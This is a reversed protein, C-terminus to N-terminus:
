QNEGSRRDGVEPRRFPSARMSNREGRVKGAVEVAEGDGGAAMTSGRWSLQISTHALGITQHDVAFIPPLKMHKVRHNVEASSPSSHKPLGIVVAPSKTGLVVTDRLCPFEGEEFVGRGNLASEQSRRGAEIDAFARPAM